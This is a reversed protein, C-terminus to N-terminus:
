LKNKEIYKDILEKQKVSNKKMFSPDKMTLLDRVAEEKYDYGLQRGIVDGSKKRIFYLKYFKDGIKKRKQIVTVEGKLVSSEFLERLKIM